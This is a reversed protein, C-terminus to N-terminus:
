NRYDRESVLGMSFVEISDAEIWGMACAGEFADGSTAACAQGSHPVNWRVPRSGYTRCLRSTGCAAVAKTPTEVVYYMYAKGSGGAEALVCLFQGTRLVAPWAGAKPPYRDYVPADPEAVVGAFLGDAGCGPYLRVDFTDGNAPSGMTCGLGRAPDACTASALAAVHAHDRLDRSRVRRDREAGAQVPAATDAGAQPAPVEDHNAARCAALASLSAVLAAMAFSKTITM